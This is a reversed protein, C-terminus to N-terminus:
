TREMKHRAFIEYESFLGWLEDPCKASSLFSKGKTPM